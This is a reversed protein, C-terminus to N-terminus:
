GGIYQIETELMVGSMEFVRKQIIYILSLVDESTAGGTNIIFGAHLESVQAGGISLGKLGAEEILKGAFFGEPRKFVSGASPYSLPQKQKRMTTYENMREAAHGDDPLLELEVECVIHRPARFTSTRYGFDGACPTYEVLEGDSVCRLCKVLGGIEGGYAGANMAVAGGLTGPIGSAWELGMLGAAITKKSLRGLLVGAGARVCTGDIEILSMKEGIRIVLADIGNDSVLLNTGNGVTVADLGCEAAARQAYCIDEACRPEVMAFADGGVKFSTYEKMSVGRKIGMGDLLKFIDNKERM